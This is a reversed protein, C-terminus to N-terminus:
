FFIVQELHADEHESVLNDTAAAITTFQAPERTATTPAVAKTNSNYPLVNAIM